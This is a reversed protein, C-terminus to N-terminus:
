GAPWLSNPLQKSGHSVQLLAVFNPSKTHDKGCFFRHLASSETAEAQSEMVVLKLDFRGGGRRTM